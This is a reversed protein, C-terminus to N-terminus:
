CRTLLENVIRTNTKSVLSSTRIGTKVRGERAFRERELVHVDILEPASVGGSEMESPQEDNESSECDLM